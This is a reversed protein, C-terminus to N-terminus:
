YPPGPMLALAEQYVDGNAQIKLDEYHNMLRRRFEAAADGCAGTCDDCNDYTLGNQVIYNNLLVSIQYNLEGSTKATEFPNPKLAPRREPKVYPM